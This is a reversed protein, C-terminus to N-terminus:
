MDREASVDDNVLELRLHKGRQHIFDKKAHRKYSRGLKRKVLEAAMILADARANAAIRREYSKTTDATKCAARASKMLRQAVDSPSMKRM